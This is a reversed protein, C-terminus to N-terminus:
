LYSRTIKLTQHDVLLFTFAPSKWVLGVPWDARAAEYPPILQLQWVTHTHTQTHQWSTFRRFSLCSTENQPIIHKTQGATVTNTMQQLMETVTKTTLSVLAAAIQVNMLWDILVTKITKDKRDRKKKKKKLCLWVNAPEHKAHSLRSYHTWHSKKPNQVTPPIFKTRQVNGAM